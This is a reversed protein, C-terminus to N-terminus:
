IPWSPTYKSTDGTTSPRFSPLHDAARAKGKGVSTPYPWQNDVSPEALPWDSMRPQDNGAAM